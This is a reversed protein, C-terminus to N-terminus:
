DDHQLGTSDMHPYGLSEELGFALAELRGVLAPRLYLIGIFEVGVALDRETLESRQRRIWCAFRWAFEVRLQRELLLTLVQGRRAFAAELRALGMLGVDGELWIRFRGYAAEFEARVDLDPRQLAVYRRIAAEPGGRAHTRSCVPWRSAVSRLQLAHWTSLYRQGDETAAMAAVEDWRQNPTRDPSRLVGWVAGSREKLHVVGGGALVERLLDIVPCSAGSIVARRVEPLPVRARRGDSTTLTLSRDTVDLDTVNSADLHLIRGASETM